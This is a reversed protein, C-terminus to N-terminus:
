GDAQAPPRHADSGGEGAQPDGAEQDIASALAQLPSGAPLGPEAGLEGIRELRRDLQRTRTGALADYARRASELARELKGMQDKFKRWEAGFAGLARLVEDTRKAFRFNEAAQRIVALVAFLTLPSCLVVRQALAEDILDPDNEHLFAYVQENPIFVLVYDLTGAEPDIYDRGRVESIRARVDARFARAEAAREADSAASLYRQYHAMPTKVDMNLRKGEILFTFDPRAGDGLARQKEYQVGEIMGALRLVDEAMREGWQGRSQAGSLVENLRKTEQRLLETQRGSERTVTALEVISQGRQKDVTLVFERLGELERRVEGLTRDIEQQRAKLQEEGRATEQALLSKNQVVLQQVGASQVEEQLRLVEARMLQALQEREGPDLASPREGAALLRRALLAIAVLAVLLLAGLLYVM